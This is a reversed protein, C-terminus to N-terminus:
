QAQGEAIVDDLVDEVEVVSTERFGENACEDAINAGERHLLAHCPKVLDKDDRQRGLLNEDLTTSFHM